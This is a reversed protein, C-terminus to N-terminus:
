RKPFALVKGEGMAAEFEELRDIPQGCVLGRCIFAMPREQAEASVLRPLYDPAEAADFPIVYVQRWPKYGQTAVERWAGVEADPGRIIVLEGPYIEAELAALLSCHGAPYQEMAARAWTLTAHAADLYRPAAFLHGLQILAQALVANGPPLADDTTPKPRHILQEHDHATFFFGGADRDEFHTLAAEALAVAFAADADRWRASLLALLADLLNAYDDLYAPYKADGNRWTACLRGDAFVESRIFDAARTASDIWAPESLLMGAKAM